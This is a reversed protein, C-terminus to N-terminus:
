DLVKVTYNGYGSYGSPIADAVEQSHAYMIPNTAKSGANYVWSYLKITAWDTVNPAYMTEIATCGSFMYYCGYDGISTVNSLYPATTLATCGYFMNSCGYKNITTVNGFNMNESSVINTDKYFLGYFSYSPVSTLTDINEYDVLSMINGSATYPVDMNIKTCLASNTARNFGNKNVGRLMVSKGSAVPITTTEGATLTPTIWNSGDTSYELNPVYSGTVSSGVVLNLNGDESSTNTLTLGNWLEKSFIAYVDVAGDITFTRPNDTNGDSWRDFIYGEDAVAEATVTAGKPMTSYYTGRYNTSM